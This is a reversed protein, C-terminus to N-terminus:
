YLSHRERRRTSAKSWAFLGGAVSGAVAIVTLVIVAGAAFLGSLLVLTSVTGAAAGIRSLPQFSTM